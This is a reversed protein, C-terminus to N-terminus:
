SSLCPGRPRVHRSHEAAVLHLISGVLEPLFHTTACRAPKQIAADAGYQGWCGVRRHFCSPYARVVVRWYEPRWLRWEVVGEAAVAVAEAAIVPAVVEITLVQVSRSALRQIRHCGGRRADEDSFSLTRIKAQTNM